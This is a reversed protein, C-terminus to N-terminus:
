EPLLTQGGLVKKLELFTGVHECGPLTIQFDKFEPARGQLVHFAQGILSQGCTDDSVQAQVTLKQLGVGAPVSAPFTYVEAFHPAASGSTGLRQLTGLSSAEVGAPQILDTPLDNWQLVVRNVGEAEPVVATATAGAGDDFTIFLSANVSLAPVTLTAQGLDDTVASFVMGNHQVEFPKSTRCPSQVTLAIMADEAIATSLLIDCTPMDDAKDAAQEEPVSVVVSESVLATLKVSSPDVRLINEDTDSARQVVPVELKPTFDTAKQLPSTDVQAPLVSRSEAPSVGRSAAANDYQMVYGISLAFAFTAGAM